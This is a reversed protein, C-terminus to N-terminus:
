RKEFLSSKKSQVPGDFNISLTPLGSSSYNPKNLRRFINDTPSSIESKLSCFATADKKSRKNQLFYKNVLNATEFKRNTM